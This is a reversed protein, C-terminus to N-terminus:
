YCPLKPNNAKNWAAIKPHNDLTKILKTLKPCGNTICTKDIGDLVGMGIWNATVYFCIDALTVSDGCLYGSPRVQLPRRRCPFLSTWTHTLRGYQRPRPLIVTITGVM